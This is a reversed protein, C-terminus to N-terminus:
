VGKSNDFLGGEPCCSVREGDETIGERVMVCEGGCDCRCHYMEYYPDVNDPARCIITLTRFKDGQQLDKM